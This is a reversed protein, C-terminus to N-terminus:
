QRLTTLVSYQFWVMVFLRNIIIAYGPFSDHYHTVEDTDEGHVATDWVIGSLMLISYTSIVAAIRM